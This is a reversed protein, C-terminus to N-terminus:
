GARAAQIEALMEPNSAAIVDYPTTFDIATLPQGNIDTFLGGAETVLLHPGVFNEPTLRQRRDVYADYGGDAVYAIDLVSAGMRRAAAAAAVVRLSDVGLPEGPADDSPINGYRGANVCIIARELPVPPAVRIPQGDRTAGKGREAFYWTGTYIDGVGAYQVYRLDLPRDAPLVGVAFGVARVGRKLNLSGDCPDVVLTWKPPGWGLVATGMEESFVRVAGLERVAFELALREAEADFASTVEGKPNQAVIQRNAVGHQLLYARVAAFMVRLVAEM